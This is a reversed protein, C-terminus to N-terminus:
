VFVFFKGVLYNGIVVAGQALIKAWPLSWSKIKLEHKFKLVDLLIWLSLYEFIFSVAFRGLFFKVIEDQWPAQSRFVFGRNLFFAFLISLVIAPFNSLWWRKLGLKRNLFSFVCLNLATVLVGSILYRIFEALPLQQLWEGFTLYLTIM